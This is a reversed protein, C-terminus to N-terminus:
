NLQLRTLGFELARPNGQEGDAVIGDGNQGAERRLTADAVVEQRVLATPEDTPESQQVSV